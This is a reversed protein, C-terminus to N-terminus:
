ASLRELELLIESLMRLERRMRSTFDHASRAADFRERIRNIHCPSEPDYDQAELTWSLAVPLPSAYKRFLQLCEQAHNYDAAARKLEVARLFAPSLTHYPIM